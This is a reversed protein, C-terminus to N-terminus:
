AWRRLQKLAKEFEAPLPAEIRTRVGTAPHDFELAAAHLALRDLLPRESEGTPRYNRKLQSLLVPRGDGYLPDCLIPAKIHAMHVRLQHTRGTRPRLEVVAFRRGLKEVVEYETTSPKGDVHVRMRGPRREDPLIAADILGADHLPPPGVIAVYTKAVGAQEFQESLAVLADHTKACLVLGSTDRDLRHVNATQEGRAGHVLQMLNVLEGDWRDPVTLLGAPKDFAVVHEDEYAIPPLSSDSM